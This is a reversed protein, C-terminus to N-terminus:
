PRNCIRDAQRAVLNMYLATLRQSEKEWCFEQQAARLANIHTRELADRDSLMATLAAAIGAPALSSVVQGVDYANLIAEVAELRSALIPLGAMLFEFLKNPLCMKINSSYEPDYVILGVTASATWELLENYPVPPLIKVRDAVGESAILSELHLLMEKTGAGMMVIIIDKELYAAARILLELGRDPGLNGQYLAIRTESGLNLRTRLRNGPSVASYAPVNRLLIVPSAAYHRQLEEAIPPSVTIVAACRPLIRALLYTCLGRLHKWFGVRTDPPQMEYAEFVLPKRRLTAVIYCAPLATLESAHYIDARAQMLHYISRVFVQLARVFFLPEFRRSTHWDGLLIHKMSIGNVSEESPRAREAEVDVISVAFGSEVLAAAARLARVDVRVDGVVHM